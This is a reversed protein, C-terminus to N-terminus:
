SEMWRILVDAPIHQRAIGALLQPDAPANLYVDVLFRLPDDMAYATCSSQCTTPQYYEIRDVDLGLDDLLEAFATQTFRYVGGLIAQEVADERSLPSPTYLEPLGYDSEYDALLEPPVSAVADLILDAQDSAADLVMGHASLEAKINPSAPSYADSPLLHSLVIASTTMGGGGCNSWGAGM